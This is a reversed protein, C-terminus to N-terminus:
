RWKNNIMQPPSFGQYIETKNEKQNGDKAVKIFKLYGVVGQDTGIAEWLVGFIGFFGVFKSV